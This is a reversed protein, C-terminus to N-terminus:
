KVPTGNEMKVSPEVTALETAGVAYLIMGNSVVGRIERPALNVVVPVQRGVLVSPDPYHTAVGSVVQRLTGEGADVMLKLLRDSDPVKEASVITALRVDLKKVDDFSIIQTEMNITYIM